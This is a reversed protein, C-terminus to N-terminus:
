SVIKFNRRGRNLLADICGYLQLFNVPKLVGECTDSKYKTLAPDIHWDLHGPSAKCLPAFGTKTNLRSTKVWGISIVVTAGADLNSDASKVISM